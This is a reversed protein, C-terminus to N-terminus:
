KNDVPQVDVQSDQGGNLHPQAFVEDPIADIYALVNVGTLREVEERDKITNDMLYKVTVYGVSILLGIALGVVIYKTYNYHANQANVNTTEKLEVNDAVLKTKLIEKATEVVVDLKEEALEYSVDTYSINFILSGEDSYNINIKSATIESEGGQERYSENTADIFESSTLIMEINPLYLQALTIKSTNSANNGSATKFDTILMVSTTETYVPSVRLIGLGFGLLAGLVTSLILLLLKEYLASFFTRGSSVQENQIIQNDM